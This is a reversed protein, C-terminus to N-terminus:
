NNFQKKTKPLWFYWSLFLYIALHAIKNILTLHPTKSFFAVIWIIIGFLSILLVLLRSWKQLRLLGIGCIIFLLKQFLFQPMSIDPLLPLLHFKNLVQPPFAIRILYFLPWIIFLIGIIAISTPIEKKM